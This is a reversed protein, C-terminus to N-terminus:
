RFSLIPVQAHFAMKRSFSTHFLREFMKRKPIFLALLDVEDEEVYTEMGQMLSKNQVLKFHDYGYQEKIENEKAKLDEYTEKTEVHVFEIKASLAKAVLQLEDFSDRQAPFFDTAFAIKRIPRYEAQEPIAIVPCHAHMIMQSTVSGMLKEIANHEGKTGMIILDYGQDEAKDVIEQYIFVGYEAIKEGVRKSPHQQHFAELKEEINKRKDDLMEQIFEPPVSSADSVPLNFVTILDIQADLKEALHNAYLFANSACSSFDTPFLIKKM